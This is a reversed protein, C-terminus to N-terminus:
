KPNEQEHLHRKHPFETRCTARRQKFLLISNEAAKDWRTEIEEPHRDNMPWVKDEVNESTRDAFLTLSGFWDLMTSRATEGKQSNWMPYSTSSSADNCRILVETPGNTDEARSHPTSGQYVLSIFVVSTELGKTVHITSTTVPPQQMKAEKANIDDQPLVINSTPISRAEEESNGKARGWNKSRPVIVTKVGWNTNKEAFANNDSIQVPM